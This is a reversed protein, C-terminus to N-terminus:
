GPIGLPHFLELLSMQRLRAGPASSELAMPSRTIEIPEDGDDDDSNDSDPIEEVEYVAAPPGAEISLTQKGSISGGAVGDPGLWLELAKSAACLEPRERKVLEVFVDLQGVRLVREVWRNSIEEHPVLMLIGWGLNKVITHWRIGRKLRSKFLVQHKSRPTLHALEMLEAIAQTRVQGKGYRNRSRDDSLARDREQIEEVKLAYATGLLALAWRTGISVAAAKSEYRTVMSMAFCFRRDASSLQSGRGTLEFEDGVTQRVDADEPFPTGLLRWTHLFQAAHYRSSTNGLARSNGLLASATFYPTPSAQFFDGDGDESMPQKIVWAIISEDQRAISDYAAREQLPAKDSPARLGLKARKTARLDDMKRARQQEARRNNNTVSTVRVEAHPSPSAGAGTDDERDSGGGSPITDLTTCARKAPAAKAPLGARKLSDPSWDSPIQASPPVDSADHALTQAADVLRRWGEQPLASEPLTERLLWIAALTSHAVLVPKCTATHDLDLGLWGASHQTDDAQTQSSQKTDFFLREYDENPPRYQFRNAIQSYKAIPFSRHGGDFQEVAESLTDSWHMDPRPSPLLCFIIGRTTRRRSGVVSSARMGRWPTRGTAIYLWKDGNAAFWRCSVTTQGHSTSCRETSTAVTYWPRMNELTRLWRVKPNQCAPARAKLDPQSPSGGCRFGHVTEFSQEFVMWEVSGDDASMACNGDRRGLDGRMNLSFVWKYRDSFSTSDSCSYM